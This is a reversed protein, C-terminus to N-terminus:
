IIESVKNKLLIIVIILLIILNAFKFINKYFIDSYIKTNM